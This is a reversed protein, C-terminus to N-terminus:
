VIDHGLFIGQGLLFFYDHFIKLSLGHQTEELIKKCSGLQTQKFQNGLLFM